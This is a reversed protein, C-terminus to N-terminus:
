NLSKILADAEEGSYGQNTVLAAKLKDSLIMKPGEKDGKSDNGSTSTATAHAAGTGNGKKFKQKRELWKEHDYGAPMYLGDAERSKHGKGCWDYGVGDITTKPGVYKCRRRDLSSQKKRDDSTSGSPTNRAKEELLQQKVEALSTTLAMIKTDAPDMYDWSKNHVMNNYRNKIGRLLEGIEKDSVTSNPKAEYEDQLRIIYDTFIRNPFTKLSKFLDDMFSDYTAGQNVTIEDYATEMVNLLKVVNNEYKKAEVTQLVTKFAKSGARVSPKMYDVLVKLMTAGDEEIEDTKLDRWEYDRRQLRLVELTKNDFHGEIVRRIMTSRVRAYFIKKEDDTSDAKTDRQLLSLEM